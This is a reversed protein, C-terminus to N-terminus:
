KKRNWSDVVSIFASGLVIGGITGALFLYLFSYSAIDYVKIGQNILKFNSKTIQNYKLVEQNLRNILTKAINHAVEKKEAIIEIVMNQREQRYATITAKTQVLRLVEDILVQNKIWGQITEAFYAAGQVHAYASTEGIVGTTTFLVAQGTNLNRFNYSFILTSLVTVIVILSFSLAHHKILKLYCYM